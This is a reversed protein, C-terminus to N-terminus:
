DHNGPGPQRRKEIEFEGAEQASAVLPTTAALWVIAAVAIAPKM